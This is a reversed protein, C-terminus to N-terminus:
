RDGTATGRDNGNGRDEGRAEGRGIQAFLARTAPSPTADIDRLAARCRAIQERAQARRGEAAYLEIAVRHAAEDAPDRGLMTDLLAHAEDVRGLAQATRAADLATRQWGARLRERPAALWDEYPDDPLLDMAGLRLVDAAARDLDSDIRGDVTRESVLQFAAELRDIDLDIVAPDLQIWGRDAELVPDPGLTRRAFHIAKRVNARSQRPARGPWLIEGAAERSLRHGPTVLLLKVLRAASTRTWDRAILSREHVVLEFGGLVRARLLVGPRVAGAQEASAAM